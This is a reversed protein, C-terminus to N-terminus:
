MSAENCTRQCTFKFINSHCKSHCKSHCYTVQDAHKASCVLNKM